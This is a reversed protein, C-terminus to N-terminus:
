RLSRIGKNRSEALAKGLPDNPFLAEYKNVEVNKAPPSVPQQTIGINYTSTAGPTVDLLANSPLMGEPIEVRQTRPPNAFSEPEDTDPQGAYPTRAVERRYKKDTVISPDYIGAFFLKTRFNSATPEDIAGVPINEPMEKTMVAAFEDDFLARELARDIVRQQRAKIAQGIFWIGAVRGSSRGEIVAVSRASFGQPTVGTLRSIEKILDSGSVVQGGTPLAKSAEKVRLHIGNLVVLDELHKKGLVLELVPRNRSIMKEFALPNKFGEEAALKELVVRKFEQQVGKDKGVEKVLRRILKFNPKGTPGRVIAQNLAQDIIADATEDIGRDKGLTGQVVNFDKDLKAIQNKLIDTNVESALKQIEGQRAVLGEFVAQKNDLLEKGTIEAGNEDLVKITKLMSDNKNMFQNFKTMNLTGTTSNFINGEDLAKGLLVDKMTTFLEVRQEPSTAKVFSNFEAATVEDKLFLKGANEDTTEYVIKEPRSQSRKKVVNNITKTNFVTSIEKDWAEVFKLYNEFGKAKKDSGFKKGTTDILKLIKDFESADGKKNIVDNKARKIEQRFTIWESLTIEKSADYDVFKRIENPKQVISDKLYRGQLELLSKNKMNPFVSDLFQKQLKVFETKLLKPPNNPDFNFEKLLRNKTAERSTELFTRITQGAQTLQDFPITEDNIAKIIEENTRKITQGATDIENRVNGIFVKLPDRDAGAFTFVKEGTELGLAKEAQKIKELNRGFREFERITKDGSFTGARSVQAELLKPALSKEAITLELPEIGLEKLKADIKNYAEINRRAEAQSLEGQILKQVTSEAEKQDKESTKIIRDRFGTYGEKIKGTLSSKDTGLNPTLADDAWNIVQGSPTRKALSKIGKYLGAGAGAVLAGGLAINGLGPSIQELGEYGAGVAAGIKAEKRLYKSPDRAARTVEKAGFSKIGGLAAKEGLEEAVEGTVEAKALAKDKVIRGDPGTYVKKDKDWKFKKMEENFKIQKDTFKKNIERKEKPTKAKNLARQKAQKIAKITSTKLAVKSAKTGGYLANGILRVAATQPIAFTAFQGATEAIQGLTGSQGVFEGVGLIVNGVKRQQEYNGSTLLRSLRDKTAWFGVDEGKIINEEALKETIKNIGADPIYALADIVGTIFGTGVDVATELLGAAVGEGFEAQGGAREIAVDATGTIGEKGLGLAEDGIVPDNAFPDDPIFAGFEVDVKRTKQERAM